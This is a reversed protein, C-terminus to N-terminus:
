AVDIDVGAVATVVAREKGRRTHFERALGTAHIM